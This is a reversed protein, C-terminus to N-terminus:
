VGREGREGECSKQILKYNEDFDFGVGAGVAFGKSLESGYSLRIKGSSDVYTMASYKGMKKLVSHLSDYLPIDQCIEAQGKKSEVRTQNMAYQYYFIGAWWVLVNELIILAIIIALKSKKMIKKNVVLHKQLNTNPIRGNNKLM